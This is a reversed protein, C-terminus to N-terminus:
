KVLVKKEKIEADIIFLDGDSDKLVNRPFLDWVEFQENVFRGDNVKKFGIAAMYTEIEINTAPVADQVLHQKLIPMISRGEFGTFGYFSYSTDLLGNNM